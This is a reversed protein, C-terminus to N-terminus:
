NHGEGRVKVKLKVEVKPESSLEEVTTLMVYVCETCECCAYMLM